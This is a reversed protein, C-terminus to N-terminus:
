RNKKVKISKKLDDEYINTNTYTNDDYISMAPVYNTIFDLGDMKVKNNDNLKFDDNDKSTSLLSKVENFLTLAVENVKNLISIENFNWNNSADKKHTYILLIAVGWLIGIRTNKYTKKWNYNFIFFANKIYDEDYLISILGWLFWCSDNDTSYFKTEFTYKKRCIYDFCERLKNAIDSLKSVEDCSINDSTKILFILGSIIKLSLDYTDSEIPPLVGQFKMIGNTSLKASKEFINLIKKRLIPISSNGAKPVPHKNYIDCIICLKTILLLINKIIINKDNIINNIDNIIDIYKKANSLNVFTGIYSALAILTNEFTEISIDSKLLVNCTHYLSNQVDGKTILEFLENNIM